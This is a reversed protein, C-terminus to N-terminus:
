LSGEEVGTKNQSYFAAGEKAVEANVALHKNEGDPDRFEFGPAEAALRLLKYCHNPGPEDDFVTCMVDHYDIKSRGHRSVAREFAHERVMGIKEDRTLSEYGRDETLESYRLELKALRTKTEELEDELGDVRNAKALARQAIQIADRATVDPLDDDEPMAM